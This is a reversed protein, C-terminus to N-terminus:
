NVDGFYILAKVTANGDTTITATIKMSTFVDHQLDLTVFDSTASSLTKTAVRTLTQANTNTVNDILKNYTVYTTDDVSVTVAFATSGATHAARTLMLVVRNAGTIDVATATTTETVASLLTIVKPTLM